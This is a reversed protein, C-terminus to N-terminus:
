CPQCPTTTPWSWRGATVSACGGCCASAARSMPAVPKADPWAAGSKVWLVLDAIERDELKKGSPMKLDGDHRVARILISEDPKGPVVPPGSEGGKAFADASDLRLRGKVKDPGHCSVCKSLLLPRVKKEFHDSPTQADALATAALLALVCTFRIAM